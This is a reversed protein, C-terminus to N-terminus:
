NQSELIRSSDVHEQDFTGADRGFHRRLQRRNEKKVAVGAVDTVSQCVNVPEDFVELAVDTQHAVM